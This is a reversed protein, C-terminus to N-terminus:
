LEESKDVKVNELGKTSHKKVYEVMGELTREGDFKKPTKEGAKVFFLTPFRFCDCLFLLYM